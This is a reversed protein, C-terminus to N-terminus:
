NLATSNSMHDTAVKIRILTREELNKIKEKRYREIVGEAVKRLNKKSKILKFMRCDMCKMIKGKTEILSKLELHKITNLYYATKL